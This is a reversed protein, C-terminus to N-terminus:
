TPGHRVPVVRTIFFAILEIKNFQGTYASSTFYNCIQPWNPLIYTTCKRGAPRIKEYIIM